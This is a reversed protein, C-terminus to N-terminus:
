DERELRARLWRWRRRASRGPVPTAGAAPRDVLDDILRSAITGRHGRKWNDSSEGAAIWPPLPLVLYRALGDLLPEYTARLMALVERTDAGGKWPVGADLLIAELRGYSEPDLRDGGTFRSPSVGFSHAMEVLIQRAMTFTIRAQFPRAGEIGVLRLACVDMLCALASLWSENEHQSRYFALMPYSLHSELLESGWVEWDRLFDDLRDLGEAEAYRRLVTAASPPSGARSDLRIVQAERRSFLQYLVPLYGIVVAIFGLGTGGEVVAIARGLGTQPSVDGYGVTFFTAGSLYLQLTFAPAEGGTAHVAWEVLAFGVILGSAWLVFLLLMSLPGYHSVFEERAAQEPLRTAVSRWMWWTGRFFFRTFRLRRHVRRPLLMVEFADQLVLVLIILGVLAVVVTM